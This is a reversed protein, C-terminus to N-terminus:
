NDLAHKLINEEQIDLGIDKAEDYIFESRCKVDRSFPIGSGVKMSMETSHTNYIFEIHDAQWARSCHVLKCACKM